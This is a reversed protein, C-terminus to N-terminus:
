NFDTEKAIYDPRVRHVLVKPLNDSGPFCIMSLNSMIYWAKMICDM